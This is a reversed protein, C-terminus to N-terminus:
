RSHGTLSEVGEAAVLLTEVQEDLLLSDVLEGVVVVAGPDQLGHSLEVRGDGDGALVDGLMGVRQEDDGAVVLAATEGDLADVGLVLGAGAVGELVAGKRDLAAVLLEDHVPRGLFVGVDGDGTVASPGPASARM